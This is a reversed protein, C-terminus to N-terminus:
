LGRDMVTKINVQLMSFICHETAVIFISIQSLDYIGEVVTNRV